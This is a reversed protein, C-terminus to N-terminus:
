KKIAEVHLNQGSDTTDNVNTIEFGCEELFRKLRSYSFGTKHLQNDFIDAKGYLMQFVIEEESWYKYRKPFGSTDLREELYAKVTGIANIVSIFIKEGKKLLRNCENLIPRIEKNELCNLSNITISDYSDNDYISTKIEKSCDIILNQM